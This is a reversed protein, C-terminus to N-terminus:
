EAITTIKLSKCLTIDVNSDQFLHINAKLVDVPLDWWKSEELIAIVRQLDNFIVVM